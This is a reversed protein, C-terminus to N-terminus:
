FAGRGRGRTHQISSELEAKIQFAKEKDRNTSRNIRAEHSQLSGMLEDFSFTSLDKSEELAAVVHDFKLALSRLVKAVMTEDIIKERYSHMQSVISSVKALYEQVHENNKLCTFERHLSHLKITIVKNSGQYKTKLTFWAQKASTASAIRAFISDDMANLSGSSGGAM